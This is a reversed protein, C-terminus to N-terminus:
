VMSPRKPRNRPRRFKPRLPRLHNALFSNARGSPIDPELNNM